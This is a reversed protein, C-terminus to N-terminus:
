FCTLKKDFSFGQPNLDSLHFGLRRLALLGITNTSKCWAPSSECPIRFSENYSPGTHIRVCDPYNEEREILNYESMVKYAKGCFCINRTNFDLLFTM